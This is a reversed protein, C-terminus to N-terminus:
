SKILKVLKERSLMIVHKCTLCEIKIDAGTRVIKFKNGGCPHAKKVTIIDGIELQVM